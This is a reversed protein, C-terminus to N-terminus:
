GIIVMYTTNNLELFVVAWITMVYIDNQLNDLNILQIDYYPRHSALLRGYLVLLM